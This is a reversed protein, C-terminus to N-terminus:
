RAENYMAQAQQSGLMAQLSMNSTETKDIMYRLPYNYWRNLDKDNLLAKNAESFDELKILIEDIEDVSQAGRLALFNEINYISIQLFQNFNSFAKYTAIYNKINKIFSSKMKIYPMDIHFYSQEIVVM